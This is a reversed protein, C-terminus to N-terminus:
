NNNNGEEVEKKMLSKSLKAKRLNKLLNENLHLSKRYHSHNHIQIPHM